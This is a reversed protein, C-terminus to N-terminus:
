PFHHIVAIVRTAIDPLFIAPILALTHYSCLRFRQEYAPRIESSKRLTFNTRDCRQVLQCDSFTVQQHRLRM